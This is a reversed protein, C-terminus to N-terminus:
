IEWFSFLQKIRWEKERETIAHHMHWMIMSVSLSRITSKFCWESKKRVVMADTKRGYIDEGHFLVSGEIKCNPVLDNMRNLTKLFTSKECGSPGILATIENEKINMTVDHLVHHDGYSLNLNETTIIDM